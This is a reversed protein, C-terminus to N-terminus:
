GNYKEWLNWLVVFHEGVLQRAIRMSRHSMRSDYPTLLEDLMIKCKERGRLVHVHPRHGREGRTNVVLLFGRM